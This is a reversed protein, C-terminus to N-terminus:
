ELSPAQADLRVQAVLLDVVLDALMREGVHRQDNRDAPAIHFIVRQRDATQARVLLLDKFERGGDSCKRLLGPRGELATAAEIEAGQDATTQRATSLPVRVFSFSAM